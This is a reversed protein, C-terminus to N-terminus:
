HTPAKPVPVGYIDSQVVAELRVCCERDVQVKRPARRTEERGPHKM